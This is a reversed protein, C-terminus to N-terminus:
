IHILSLDLIYYKPKGAVSAEGPDPTRFTAHQEWYAQWKPEILAPYYSPM